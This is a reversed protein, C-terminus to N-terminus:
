QRINRGCNFTAKMLEFFQLLKTTERRRQAGFLAQQSLEAERYQYLEDAGPMADSKLV